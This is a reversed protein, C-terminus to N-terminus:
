VEPAGEAPMSWDPGSLHSIVHNIHACRKGRSWKTMYDCECTAQAYDTTYIKGSRGLIRAKTTGAIFEIIKIQPKEKKM